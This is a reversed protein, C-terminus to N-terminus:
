LLLLFSGPFTGAVPAFAIFLTFSRILSHISTIRSFSPCLSLSLTHTHTCLSFYSFPLPSVRLKRSPENKIFTKRKVCIHSDVELDSKCGKKACYIISDIERAYEYVPLCVDNEFRICCVCVCVRARERECLPVSAFLILIWILSFSSFNLPHTFAISHFSSVFHACIAWM